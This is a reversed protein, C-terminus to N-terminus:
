LGEDESWRAATLSEEGRSPPPSPTLPARVYQWLAFITLPVLMLIGSANDGFASTDGAELVVGGIQVVLALLTLALPIVSRRFRSRGALYWMIAALGVVFLGLDDIPDIGDHEGAANPVMGLGILFLVTAIMLNYSRNLIETVTM